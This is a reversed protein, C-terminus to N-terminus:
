LGHLVPGSISDAVQIKGQSLNSQAPNNLFYFYISEYMAQTAQCVSHIDSFFIGCIFLILELFM